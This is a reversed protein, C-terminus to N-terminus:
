ARGEEESVRTRVKLLLHGDPDAGDYMAFVDEEGVKGIVSSVRVM